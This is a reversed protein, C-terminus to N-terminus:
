LRRATRIRAVGGDVRRGEGGTGRTNPFDSLVRAEDLTFCPRFVPTRPPPAGGGRLMVRHSRGLVLSGRPEPLRHVKEVLIEFSISTSFCPKTVFSGDGSTSATAGLDKRPEVLTASGSNHGLHLPWSREGVGSHEDIRHTVQPVAGKSRYGALFVQKVVRYPVFGDHRVQEHFQPGGGGVLMSDRLLEVLTIAVEHLSPSEVLKRESDDGFGQDHARYPTNQAAVLRLQGHGGTLLVRM